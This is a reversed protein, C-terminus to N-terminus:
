WAQLLCAWASQDREGRQSLKNKILSWLFPPLRSSSQHSSCFLSSAFFCYARDLFLCLPTFSGSLILDVSLSPSASIFCVGHSACVSTHTSLFLAPHPIFGTLTPSPAAAAPAAKSHSLVLIPRERREGLYWVKTMTGFCVNSSKRM